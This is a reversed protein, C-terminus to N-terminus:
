RALSISSSAGLGSNSDADTGSGAIFVGGDFSGVALPGGGTGTANLRMWDALLLTPASPSRFHLMLIELYARESIEYNNELNNKKAWEKQYKVQDDYNRNKSWALPASTTIRIEDGFTRNKQEDTVYASVYVQKIEWKKERILDQMTALSFPRAVGDVMIERPLWMMMPDHSTGDERKEMGEKYSAVMAGVKERDITHAYLWEMRSMEADSITIDKGLAKGLNELATKQDRPSMFNSSLDRLFAYNKTLNTDDLTDPVRQDWGLPLILGAHTTDPPLFDINELDKKPEQPDRLDSRRVLVGWIDVRDHPKQM